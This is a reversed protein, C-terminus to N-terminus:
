KGTQTDYLDTFARNTPTENIWTALAKHFTDRVSESAVAATFLEWDAPPSDINLALVIFPADLKGKTYVHRTDLPVGYKETVTPYFTSQMDYVSQPVLNLGM